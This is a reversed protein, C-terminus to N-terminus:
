LHHSELAHLLCLPSVMITTDPFLDAIPKGEYGLGEGDIGADGTMPVSAGDTDLFSRLRTKTGGGGSSTKKSGQGQKEGVKEAFLRDRVNSPFLSSLIANSQAAANVVKDNRRRVFNDYVIFTVV